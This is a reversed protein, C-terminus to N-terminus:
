IKIILFGYIISLFYIYFKFFWGMKLYFWDHERDVFHVLNNLSLVLRLLDIRMKFSLYSYIISILYICMCYYWGKGSGRELFLWLTSPFRMRKKKFIELSCLSAGLSRKWSRTCVGLLYVKKWYRLCPTWARLCM